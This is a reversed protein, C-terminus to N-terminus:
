KGTKDKNYRGLLLNLQEVAVKIADETTNADYYSVRVRMIQESHSIWTTNGAYVRGGIGALIDGRVLLEIALHEILHPLLAGVIKDGFKGTDGSKCSHKALNPYQQLLVEALAPTVARQGGVIRLDASVASRNIQISRLSIPLANSSPESM